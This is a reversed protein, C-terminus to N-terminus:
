TEIDGVKFQEAIQLIINKGGPALKPWASIIADLSQWDDDTL